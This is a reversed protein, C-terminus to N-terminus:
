LKSNRDLLVSCKWHRPTKKTLVIATGNVRLGGAVGTNSMEWSISRNKVLNASTENQLCPWVYMNVIYNSLWEM